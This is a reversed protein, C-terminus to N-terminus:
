DELTKLYALLDDIQPPDLEFEPMDEHGTAIGEALAEAIYDIPYRKHLDRFAPAVALPSTGNRGIAHCSGCNEAAFVRGRESIDTQPQAAPMCGTLLVVALMSQIAILCAPRTYLRYRGVIQSVSATFLLSCDGIIKIRNLGTPLRVLGIQTGGDDGM